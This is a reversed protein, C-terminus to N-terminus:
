SSFQYGIMELDMLWCELFKLDISQIINYEYLEAYLKKLIEQFNGNWSFNLLFNLLGFTQTYLPIEAQFDRILHHPNRMHKVISPCFGIHSNKLHFIKQLIYSRWIDSVRGNVSLPLILGPFSLYEFLTAQSNFPCFTNIELTICFDLSRDFQKPIVQTLRFIADLDPNEDQLFQIVRPPSTEKTTVLVQPIKINQLPYGRPWILVESNNPHYYQYVNFSNSNSQIKKYTRKSWNLERNLLINDDDFDYIQQAGNRIAFLYGICKRAFNNYPILRLINLKFTKQKQISLYISNKSHLRFDNPTKKDGVVVLCIQSFSEMQKIAESPYNITTTVAWLSSNCQFKPLSVNDYYNRSLIPSFKRIKVFSFDQGSTADAFLHDNLLVEKRIFETSSNQIVKAFPFWFLLLSISFFLFISIHNM